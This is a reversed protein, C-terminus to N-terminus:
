IPVCFTCQVAAESQQLPNHLMQSQRHFLSILNLQVQFQLNVAIVQNLSCNDNLNLIFIVVDSSQMIFTVLRDSEKNLVVVGNQLFVHYICMQHRYYRCIIDLMYYLVTRSVTNNKTLLHFIILHSVVFEGWGSRRYNININTQNIITDPSQPNTSELHSPLLSLTPSPEGTNTDPSDPCM